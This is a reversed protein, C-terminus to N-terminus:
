NQQPNRPRLGNIKEMIIADSIRDVQRKISDINNIERLVFWNLVGLLLMTAAFAGGARYIFRSNQEARNQVQSIATFARELGSKTAVHETELKAMQIQISLFADLKHGFAEIKDELNSMRAGLVEVDSDKVNPM